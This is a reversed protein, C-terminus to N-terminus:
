DTARAVCEEEKPLLSELGSNQLDRYFQNASPKISTTGEQPKMVLEDTM